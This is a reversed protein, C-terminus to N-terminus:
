VTEFYGMLADRDLVVLQKDKIAVVGEKKLRSMVRSVTEETSGILGSIDRNTLPTDLREGCSPVLGAQEDVTKLLICAIRKEVREGAICRAKVYSNDLKRGIIRLLYDQLQLDQDLYKKLDEKAIRWLTIDKRVVASFPYADQGYLVGEGIIDGPFLFHFIYVKGDGHIVNAEVVGSEILYLSDAHDAEFFIFQGKDLTQLTFKSRLKEQQDKRAHGIFGDLVECKEVTGAEM